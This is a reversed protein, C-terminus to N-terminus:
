GLAGQSAAAEAALRRGDERLRENAAELRENFSDIVARQRELARRLQDTGDIIGREVRGFGDNLRRELREVEDRLERQGVLLQEVQMGLSDLTVAV